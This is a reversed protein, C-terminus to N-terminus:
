IVTEGSRPWLMPQPLVSAALSLNSRGHATCIGGARARFLTPKGLEHM